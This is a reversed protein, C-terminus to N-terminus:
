TGLSPNPTFRTLSPAAHSFVEFFKRFFDVYYRGIDQHIECQQCRDNSTTVHVKHSLNRNSLHPFQPESPFPGTPM